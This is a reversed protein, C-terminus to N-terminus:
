LYYISSTLERERERWQFFHFRTLLLACKLLYDKSSASHAEAILLCEPCLKSRLHHKLILPLILLLCTITNPYAHTHSSYIILLFIQTHTRENGLLEMADDEDEMEDETVSPASDPMSDFSDQSLMAALLKKHNQQQQKLGKGKTEM